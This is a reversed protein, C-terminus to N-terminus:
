IAQHYSDISKLRCHPWQWLSMSPSPAGRPAFCALFRTSIRLEHLWRQFDPPQREGTPDPQPRLFPPRPQPLLLQLSSPPRRCCCSLFLFLCSGGSLLWVSLLRLLFGSNTMLPQLGRRAPLPRAQSFIKAHFPLEVRGRRNADSRPPTQSNAQLLVSSFLRPFFMIISLSKCVYIYIFISVFICLFQFIFIFETKLDFNLNVSIYVFLYLYVFLCVFLYLCWYIFLFLCLSVFLSVFLYVSLVYVLM